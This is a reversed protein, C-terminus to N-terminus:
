TAAQQLLSSATLSRKSSATAMMMLNNSATHTDPRSHSLLQFMLTCWVSFTRMAHMYAPGHASVQSTSLLLDLCQINANCAHLCPRTCFIALHVPTSRLMNSAAALMCVCHGPHVEGVSHYGRHTQQQSAACPLIHLMDMNPDM